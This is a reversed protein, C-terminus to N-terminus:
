VASFDDSVPLADALARLAEAAIKRMELEPMARFPYEWDKTGSAIMELAKVLADHNNVAKVILAANADREAAGRPSSLDAIYNGYKTQISGGIVVWPRPTHEGRPADTM